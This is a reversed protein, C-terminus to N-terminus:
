TLFFTGFIKKKMVKCGGSDSGPAPAPAPAALISSGPAPAPAALFPRSRLVPKKLYELDNFKHYNKNQCLFQIIAYTVVINQQIPVLTHLTLCIKIATDVITRQFFDL